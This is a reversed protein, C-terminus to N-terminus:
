SFQFLFAIALLLLFQDPPEWGFLAAAPHTGGSKPYNPQNISVGNPM